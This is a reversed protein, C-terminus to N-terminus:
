DVDSGLLSWTKLAGNASRLGGSQRDWRDGRADSEIGAWDVEAVVGFDPPELGAHPGVLDITELTQPCCDLDCLCMRNGDLGSICDIVECGGDSPDGEGFERDDHVRPCEGIEGSCLPTFIPARHFV